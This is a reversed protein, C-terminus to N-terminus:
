GTPKGSASAPTGGAAAAGDVTSTSSGEGPSSSPRVVLRSVTEEVVKQICTIMEPTLGVAAGDTSTGEDAM